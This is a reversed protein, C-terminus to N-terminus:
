RKEFTVEMWKVEKGENDMYMEMVHTDPDLVKVVQKYKIDGKTVPDTMSGYFTYTNRKKDFKGKSMAIGTGMDDIWTNVFEQKANDFAVLNHGEYPIGMTTGKHVQQLYRGGLIMKGEMMGKTVEPDAGPQMWAKTTTKWEGTMKSLEKHAWSLEKYDMWAKMEPSMEQEQTMGKEQPKQKQNKKVTEDQAVIVLAFVIIGLLVNSFFKM